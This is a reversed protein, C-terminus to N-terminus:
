KGIKAKLEALEQELLRIRDGAEAVLSSTGLALRSTDVKMLGSNPDQIIADQLPTEAIEQAMPGYHMKDPDEGTIDEMGDKYTYLYGAVRNSFNDLPSEGGMEGIIDKAQEDSVAAAIGGAMQGIGAIRGMQLDYPDQYNMAADNLVGMSNGMLTAGMNAKNQALGAAANQQQVGLAANQQAGQMGAQQQQIGTNMQGQARAAESGMQSQYSNAANLYNNMGQQMGQQYGGQAAQGAQNAGARAAAARGMGAGRAAGAATAGAQRGQATAMSAANNTGEEKQKRLLDQGSYGYDQRAANRALTDAQNFNQRGRTYDAMGQDGLRAAGMNANGMNAAYAASGQTNLTSGIQDSQALGQDMYGQGMNYGSTATKSLKDLQNNRESGSPM